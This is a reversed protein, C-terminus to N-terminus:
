QFPTWLLHDLATFCPPSQVVSKRVCRGTIVALSTNGAHHQILLVRCIM